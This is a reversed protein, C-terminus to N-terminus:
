AFADSYYTTRVLVDGTKNNHYPLPFHVFGTVAIILLIIISYSASKREVTSGVAINGM